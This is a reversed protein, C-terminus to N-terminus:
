PTSEYVSKGNLFLLYFIASICILLFVTLFVARLYPYINIVRKEQTNDQNKNEITSM